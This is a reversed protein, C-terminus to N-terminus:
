FTPTQTSPRSAPPNKGQYTKATMSVALILAFYTAGGSSIMVPAMCGYATMFCGTMFLPLGLDFRLTTPRSSAFWLGVFYLVLGVLGFDFWVGAPGLDAAFMALDNAMFHTAAEGSPAIGFGHIPDAAIYQQAMRYEIARYLGSSDNAFAEFPNFTQIFLGSLVYTSVASLITLCIIRMYKPRIGVFHLASLFAVVLIFVRSLSLIIAALAFFAFVFTSLSRRRQVIRNFWYFWAFCAAGAYMFLRDGREVDNSTLAALLQGPVAGVRQGVALLTYIVVYATAYFVVRKLIYDRDGGVSVGYFVAFSLIWLYQFASNIDMPVASISSFFSMQNLILAVLGVVFIIPAFKGMLMCYGAYLLVLATGIGLLGTQVIPVNAALYLRSTFLLDCFITLNVLLRNTTRWFDRQTLETTRSRM